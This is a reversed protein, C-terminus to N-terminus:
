LGTRGQKNQEESQELRPWSPAREPHNRNGKSM